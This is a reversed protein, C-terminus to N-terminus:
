MESQLISIDYSVNHGVIICDGVFKEFERFVKQPIEGEKALKEDSIHHVLESSGVSKSAKVYKM